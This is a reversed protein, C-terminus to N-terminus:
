KRPKDEQSFSLYSLDIWGTGAGAEVLYKLDYLNGLHLDLEEWKKFHETVSITGCQRRGQEMGQRVSFYQIFTRDGEISPKEVRINTYVHYTGGDVVFTGLPECGGSPCLTRPGLQRDNYWDDVIYFEVYRRAPDEAGPNISWGYIGIYSHGGATGNESRTYNFDCYISKYATYPLGDRKGWFYGIRGLFCDPKIWEARFAAGGGQNAGYWYMDVGEAGRRDCWIEYHYPTGTLTGMGANGRKQLRVPDTLKTNQTCPDQQQAQASSITAALIISLLFFKRM